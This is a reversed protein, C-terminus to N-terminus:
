DMQSRKDPAAENKHTGCAHMVIQKVAPSQEHQIQFAFFLLHSNWHAWGDSLRESHEDTFHFKHRPPLFAAVTSFRFPADIV